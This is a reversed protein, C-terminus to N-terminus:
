GAPQYCRGDRYLDGAVVPLGPPPDIEYLGPGDPTLQDECDLVGTDTAPGTWLDIHTGTCNACTDELVFYRQVEPVYIRTGPPFEGDAAAFTLPDAFTGTGGATDHPTPAGGSRSFAIATSGPPDNDAAAYFTIVGLRTNGALPAAPVPIPASAATDTHAPLRQQPSLAALGAGLLVAAVGAAKLGRM